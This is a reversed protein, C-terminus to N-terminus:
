PRDAQVAAIIEQPTPADSRDRLRLRAVVEANSPREALTTLAAAVYASLSQGDAAARQKLREAVEDPVDRIYLTTM